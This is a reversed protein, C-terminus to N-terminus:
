TVFKNKIKLAEDIIDQAFGNNKLLELAIYQKSYGKELKYPFEISSDKIEVNMRYNEFRKTEKALKTLYVYHTTLILFCNKSESIKKAIAYAASIGEVPNTSNFIEDMVILTRDNTSKLLELNNLCRHMEAEFLSEYGKSDPINIQSNIYTFPTIKCSDGTCICITQSLLTNLLISKILTSKGGANPGTIILNKDRLTIDNKIVVDNNLCPHRIGKIEMVSNDDIFESYNFKKLTKFDVCSKVFDLIYSKLLVSNILEKKITKFKSLLEGYKTNFLSFKVDPLNDIYNQESEYDLLIDQNNDTILSEVLDDKFYSGISNSAAKLYKIAGNFKDLIHKSIKYLTRSIEISNFMGQFYFILTFGYSLMRMYRLNNETSFLIENGTFLTKFFFKIYEVFSIPMKFKWTLVLFPIVFYIIPSLIGIIPSLLIRYINYFSLATSSNNLSRLLYFRFYLINFLDEIHKEQQEFLWLVHHENKKMDEFSTDKVYENEFNELLERRKKLLNLDKQPNNMIIKGFEKTGQLSFDITDFVSPTKAEEVFNEFFEVDRMVDGGIKVDGEIYKIKSVLNKIVEDYSNKHTITNIIDRQKRISKDTLFNRIKEYYSM